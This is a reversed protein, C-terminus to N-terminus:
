RGVGWGGAGLWLFSALRRAKVRASYVEWGEWRVLEQKDKSDM